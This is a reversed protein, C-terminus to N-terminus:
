TRGGQRLAGHRSYEFVIESLTDVYMDLASFRVLVIGDLLTHFMIPLPADIMYCYLIDEKLDVYLQTSHVMDYSASSFSVVITPQVSTRQVRVSLIQRSVFEHFTM